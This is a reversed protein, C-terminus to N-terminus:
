EVEVVEKTALVDFVTNEYIYYAVGSKGSFVDVKTLTRDGPVFKFKTGAPLSGINRTTQPWVQKGELTITFEDTFHCGNIYEVISTINKEGNDSNLPYDMWRNRSAKDILYYEDFSVQVFYSDDEGNKSLVDLKLIKYQM